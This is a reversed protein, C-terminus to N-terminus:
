GILSSIGTMNTSSAVTSGQFDPLQTGPLRTMPRVDASMLQANKQEAQSLDAIHHERGGGDAPQTLLVWVRVEGVDDLSGGRGDDRVVRM